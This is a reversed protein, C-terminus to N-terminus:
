CYHTGTLGTHCSLMRACHSTMLATSLMIRTMRRAGTRECVMQAHECVLWM